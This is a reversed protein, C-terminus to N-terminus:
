LSEQEIEIEFEEISKVSVSIVYNLYKINKSRYKINKYEKIGNLPLAPIEKIKDKIGSGYAKVLSEKNTWIEYFNIDNKIYDYEEDSSIYKRLSEDSSRVLEIDIGIPNNKDEVYAVMGKSHAINFYKEDSLPKENESLYFVGVYKRKLITSVAKEKKTEEVKYRNIRLIDEENLFPSSLLNDLDLENSNILIIKYKNM